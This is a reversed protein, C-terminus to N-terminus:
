SCCFPQGCALTISSPPLGQWTCIPSKFHRFFGQRPGPGRHVVHRHNELCYLKVTIVQSLIVTIIIIFKRNIDSQIPNAPLRWNHQYWSCWESLLRTAAFVALSMEQERRAHAGLVSAHCFQFREWVPGWCNRGSCKMQKSWQNGWKAEKAEWFYCRMWFVETFPAAHRSKSLSLQFHM